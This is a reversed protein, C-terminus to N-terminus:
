DADSERLLKEAIVVAERFDSVLMCDSIESISKRMDGSLPADTMKALIRDAAGINESELADKLRLLSERDPKEDSAPADETKRDRLVAEIRSELDELATRFAALRAFVFAADGEKAAAELRAAEEATAAAGISASASKMAHFHVALLALDAEDASMEFIELREAIDQCYLALVAEYMEDSGGTLAIGRVTDVGEIAFSAPADPGEADARPEEAKAEAVEDTKERKEQPTWKEMIANLKNIEIPKALYDDFGMALFMEQMGSLANATLAIIPVRKFYDGELARIAATAEIGDMGPLMHDMFILDYRNDAVMSISKRGSDCLDVRMRYVSLLGEAIKLNTMIDDVILARAQPAIFRVLSRRGGYVTKVGNLMNATPVAYAPMLIAPIGRFFSTEELAALIVLGTQIKTRAALDSAREAICPSMFAFPFRGTELATLFEETGDTRTVPVRLNELTAFVSDGYLPREDYLLVAKEEPREVTAMPLNEAYKQPIFATFVSGEGYVSSVTIDGGMELCLRKSIALGLGTGEVGQNRKLDFRTFNGFLDKLDEKKIGIGSDAVEFKLSIDDEGASIGTVTLKIFGKETYKVANSLINFLIQRVRAEDGVLTDPLGADANVVFLIPKEQFRVRMVNVVNNILSSLRYPVPVLQIGGSEIKSLDLVDNIISLLNSGAQRIDFLYESLAPGSPDQLVLESMGIIANLPTRIEHSMNALFESKAKSAEDARVSRASIRVVVAGLLLFLVAALFGFDATAKHVDRRWVSEPMIRVVYWGNFICRAVVVAQRGEADAIRADVFEEGPPLESTKRILGRIDRDAYEGDSRALIRKERDLVVMTGDWVSVVSDLYESLWIGEAVRFTSGEVPNSRSFDSKIYEEVARIVERSNETLHRQLIGAVSFYGISVMLFLGVLVLAL